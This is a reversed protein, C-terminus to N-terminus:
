GPVCLMDAGWPINTIGRGCLMDTIARGHGQLSGIIIGRTGVLCLKGSSIHMRVIFTGSCADGRRPRCMMDRLQASGGEKVTHLTCM